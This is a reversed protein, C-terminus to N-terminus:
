TTVEAGFDGLVAIYEHCLGKLVSFNGSRCWDFITTETETIREDEPRTQGPWDKTSFM